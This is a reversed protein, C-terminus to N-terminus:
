SAGQAGFRDQLGISVAAWLAIGFAVFSVLGSSHWTAFLASGLIIWATM